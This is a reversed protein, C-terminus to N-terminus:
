CLFVVCLRGHLVVDDLLNWFAHSLHYMPSKQRTTPLDTRTQRWVQGYHQNPSANRARLAKPQKSQNRLGPTPSHTPTPTPTPTPQLSVAEATMFTNAPPPPLSSYDAMEVRAAAESVIEENVVETAEEHAPESKIDPVDM